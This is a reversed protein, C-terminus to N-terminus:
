PTRSHTASSVTSCCDIRQRILYVFSFATNLCVSTESAVTKFSVTSPSVLHAQAISKLPAQQPSKVEISWCMDGEQWKFDEYVEQFLELWTDKRVESEGSNPRVPKKTIRVDSILGHSIIWDASRLDGITELSFCELITNRIFFHFDQGKLIYKNVDLRWINAFRRTEVSQLLIFNGSKHDRLCYLVPFKSDPQIDQLVSDFPLASKHVTRVNALDDLLSKDYFHPNDRLPPGKQLVLMLLFYKPYSGPIM